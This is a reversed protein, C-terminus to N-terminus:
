QTTVRAWHKPKEVVITHGVDVADHSVMIATLGFNEGFAQLIETLAEMRGQDDYTTVPEDFIVVPSTNPHLLTIALRFAIDVTHKVAGGHQIVNLTVGGETIKLDLTPEGSTSEGAVIHFDYEDGNVAKVISRVLGEVHTLRTSSEMAALRVLEVALEMDAVKSDSKGLEARRADIASRVWNLNSLLDDASAM